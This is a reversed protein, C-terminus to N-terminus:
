FRYGVNVTTGDANNVWQYKGEVFISTSVNYGLNVFGGLRTQTSLGSMNEFYAGIGGGAYANGSALPSENNFGFDEGVTVPVITDHNGHDSGAIVGLDLFTRAPVTLPDGATIHYRLDADLQTSGGNDEAEGSNPWFGGVSISTPGGLGPLDPGAARAGTVSVATLAAASCAVAITIRLGRYGLRAGAGTTRIM